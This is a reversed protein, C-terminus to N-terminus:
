GGASATAGDRDQKAFDYRMDKFSHRAFVACQDAIADQYAPRDFCREQYAVLAPFGGLIDLSKAIKLVSSTMLDAATFDTGVLWDRKGLGRQLEGLRKEAMELVGPRRAAKEEEDQMFFDVEALNSLFPEVSNLAAFYWSLMLSREDADVPLLKGARTAVDLVIAGTEFLTPRGEEELIPVQGFPQESRYRASQQDEADLLRVKYPWGVENLVWRVRHDRVQGQAFPPVWKFATITIM